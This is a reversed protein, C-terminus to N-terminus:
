SLIPGGAVSDRCRACSPNGCLTVEPNSRIARELAALVEAAPYCTWRSEGVTVNSALDAVHPALKGFGESCGGVDTAVVRGDAARAWRRFLTRGARQEALHVLTLRELGVGVLLVAGGCAAVDELPAFVRGVAQHHIVEDARPGIAAFSSLPHNGRTHGSRRLVEAPVAGMGRDIVTSAPDFPRSRYGRTPEAERDWGNREPQPGPPLEYSTDWTFSPVVFTCGDDLLADVLAAAGGRLTGFSSLSSHVCVVSDVLGLRDGAIRVDAASVITM